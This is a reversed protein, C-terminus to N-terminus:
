ARRKALAVIGGAVGCVAGIIVVVLGAGASGGLVDALDRVDSYDVIAALLGFGAIVIAVIAVAILRRWILLSAGFAALAVGMVVFVPGDKTEGGIKDMGSFSSGTLQFWPMFSGIVMLVGAAIMLAGAVPVAPRQPPPAPQWGGAPFAPQSPAAASGWQQPGSPPPPPPPM